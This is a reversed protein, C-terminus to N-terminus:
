GVRQRGKHSLGWGQDDEGIVNVFADAHLRCKKTGVGIMMSTGFVRNELRVEWYHKGGNLRCFRSTIHSTIHSTVHTLM